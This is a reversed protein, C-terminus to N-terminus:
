FYCYYEQMTMKNRSSQIPSAADSYPIGLQFGRDGYPFLLPYQLSMYAPHLSLIQCLGLSRDHVVIDRSPTELSFDTVILAALQDVSPLSYRPGDGDSPGVIRISIRENEYGALRYRAIRFQRVLPNHKVLM